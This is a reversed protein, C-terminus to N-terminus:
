LLPVLPPPPPPDESLSHPFYSPTFTGGMQSRMEIVLQRLKVMEASLREYNTTLRTTQDKVRQDLIAM